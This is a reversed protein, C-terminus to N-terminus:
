GSLLIAPHTNRIIARRFDEHLDLDMLELTSSEDLLVPADHIGTPVYSGLVAQAVGAQALPHVGVVIPADALAPIEGNRAVVVANGWVRAEGNPALDSYLPFVRQVAFVDAITRHIARMAPSDAGGILNMALVGDPVMRDRVAALAERTLLHGPTVDGSFVDMIVVDYMAASEVLFRRGDGVYVPRRANMGFFQQAVDVVAPDIDVADVELGRAELARPLVGGGVGVILVRKAEPKLALPLRELLYPYEYISRGDATDIGTQLLGDILMERHRGHAGLYDIIRVAGYYSDVAGVVRAETGNAFRLVPLEGTPMWFLGVPLLWWVHQRRFASFYVAGLLTLVVGCAVLSRSVGLWGILVFGAFVTGVFSGATSLAFLAGATRGLHLADPSLMRLVFPSSVGLLMLPPAFLIAAASLAGLRLGLDAVGLVVYAKLWPVAAVLAGAVAVFWFLWREDPRADALWGGLVYGLSLSLLTVAILATWVFLSVGFYPGLVRAGLIEVVMVLAGTLTATAILFLDKGTLRMKAAVSHDLM